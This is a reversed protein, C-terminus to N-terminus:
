KINRLQKVKSPRRSAHLIGIIIIENAKIRYIVLWSMCVAKRYIKKITPIEECEKYAYPNQGIREITEFIADGVKIANLPQHNIFAIYSTIDDINQYAYETIRVQYTKQIKEKSDGM